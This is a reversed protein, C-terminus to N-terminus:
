PLQSDVAGRGGTADRYYQEFRARIRALAQQRAPTAPATRDSVLVFAQRLLRPAHAADPIRPGMAAIVDQITVNRRVGTFSVGAEPGSAAKYGRDPRFNDPADVYFFPPVEEPPRLGMAYQDLASYGRAFDVTEFHDGLDAIRNGEVDSADSHMFFSWHALGRGLLATSSAGQADRFRLRALWRHEVEHGLIEFGDVDLYSDISDMFAVSALAGSSGWRASDDLIELGIGQIENRVNIEFALTGPVPNLPRTTYVVIQEFVDPHTSLFRRAVSVLDIKEADSFHEVLAGSARSPSPVSLDAATAERAAGPSLGVLSERTELRAGYVFDISGDPHLTAEFTNRNLQGAGPVDLWVISVRDAAASVTVQGGRSPDLDAFFPAICPPGSLLRSLGRESTSTDPAGFTLHGDSHAFVQDYRRGFFPFPFPLDVARADDAGLGLSSGPPDLPLSLRAVTYGDRDPVFRLTAGELDFPNQRVVLDDRDELVAVNDVDRDAAVSAVREPRARTQEWYQHWAAMERAGNPTTGCVGGTDARLAGAALLLLAVAPIM